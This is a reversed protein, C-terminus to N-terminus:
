LLWLLLARLAIASITLDPSAFIRAGSLGTAPGVVTAQVRALLGRAVRVGRRGQLATGACRVSEESTGAAGSRLRRGTVRASRGDQGARSDTTSGKLFTFMGTGGLAVGSVVGRASPGDSDDTATARVLTLQRAVLRAAGLVGALADAAGHAGAAFVLTGARATRQSELLAEQSTAAFLALLDTQCVHLRDLRLILVTPMGTQQGAALHQRATTMNTRPLIM